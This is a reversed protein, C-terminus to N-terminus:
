AEAAEAAKATEAARAALMADREAQNAVIRRAAQLFTAKEGKVEKGECKAVIAKAYAGVSAADAAAPNFRAMTDGNILWLEGNVVVMAGGKTKLASPPFVRVLEAMVPGYTRNDILRNILADGVMDREMRNGSTLVGLITRNQVKGTKTVRQVSLTAPIAIANIQESM